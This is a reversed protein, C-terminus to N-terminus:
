KMLQKFIQNMGETAPKAIMQYADDVMDPINKDIVIKACHPPLYDVLSAAPYVQLSTGIVIFIDATYAIAAAKQMMPVDEGFWVIFPRLQDGQQDVDGIKLDQNYPYTKNKNSVSCIKTIEGHLHLVNTSGGLEHLNDINQTIVTVAYRAELQALLKHANNPAAKLVDNRRQNYFELVMAPDKAWGMPSAVDYVNYGEWLGDTDRFTKLGSEASIGAGTLAVIHKM